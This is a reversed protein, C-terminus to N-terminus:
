YKFFKPITRHIELQLMCTIRCILIPLILTNYINSNIHIIKFVMKQKTDIWLISNKESIQGNLLFLSTFNESPQNMTFSYSFYESQVTLSTMSEPLGYGMGLLLCM